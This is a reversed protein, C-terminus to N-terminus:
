QWCGEGNGGGSVPKGQSHLADTPDAVGTDCAQGPEM